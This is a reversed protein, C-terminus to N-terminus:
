AQSDTASRRDVTFAPWTEPGPIAMTSALLTSTWHRYRNETTWCGAATCCSRYTHLAWRAASIFVRCRTEIGFRLDVGPTSPQGTSLRGSASRGISEARSTAVPSHRYACRVLCSSIGASTLQSMRGQVSGEVIFWKSTTVMASSMARAAHSCNGWFM